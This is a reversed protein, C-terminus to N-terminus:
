VLVIDLDDDNDLDGIAMGLRDFGINFQEMITFQMEGSEDFGENSFITLRSNDVISVFDLDGDNDMDGWESAFGTNDFTYSAVSNLGTPGVSSQGIISEIQTKIGFNISTEQLSVSDQVSSQNIQLNAADADISLALFLILFSCLLISLIASFLKNLKLNQTSRNNSKNM